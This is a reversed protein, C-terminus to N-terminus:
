RTQIASNQAIHQNFNMAVDGDVVRAAVWLDQLERVQNYLLQGQEVRGLLCHNLVISYGVLLAGEHESFKNLRAKEIESAIPMMSTFHQNIGADRFLQWIKEHYKKKGGFGFM